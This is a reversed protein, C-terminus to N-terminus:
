VEIAADIPVDPLTARGKLFAIEVAFSIGAVTAGAAEVLRCAARATGGTAIVDDHVLVRAASPLDDAHLELADRGYELDYTERLTAAPLKGPKRAPVFGAGLRDAIAPGLWYGRAEIGVVHTIGADTWPEVLRGLLASFLAPDALVPTLDKFAIGPKPFDPVTRLASLFDPM